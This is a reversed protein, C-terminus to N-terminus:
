RENTQSQRIYNPRKLVIIVSNSKPACNFPNSLAFVMREYKSFFVLTFFQAKNITNVNSILDNM